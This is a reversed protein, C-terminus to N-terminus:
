SSCTFSEKCIRCTVEARRVGVPLRLQQTCLPCRFLVNKKAGSEISYVDYDYLKVDQGAGKTSRWVAYRYKLRSLLGATALPAQELERGLRTFGASLAAKGEKRPIWPAVDEHTVNSRRALVYGFEEPTLYGLKSTRVSTPSYEYASLASWGAGLYNATTDTLVENEFTDSYRLGHTDLFFHAIEHALIAVIQGSGRFRGQMEIQRKGGATETITGAKKMNDSFRVVVQNAPLHFHHVMAGVIRQASIDPNGVMAADIIAPSLSSPFQLGLLAPGPFLRHLDTISRQIVRLNPFGLSLLEADNRLNAM